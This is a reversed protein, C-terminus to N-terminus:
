REYKRRYADAKASQVVCSGGCLKCLDGAFGTTGKGNCRPCEIEDIEDPDYARRRTRSVVCSGECFACIDNVLGTTGRGNCHPCDVEDIEKPDYADRKARSVVCSGKCFACIDNVLGTTGRGSCHPCEVEDIDEPEYADAKAQSVVCSGRCYACLDSVLGTTGRGNCRPCPVEDIGDPDYADRKAHSVFCSGRCYRCFDGVLGTLGRGNCHPCDVEDIEVLVDEVESVLEKAKDRVAKETQKAPVAAAIAALKPAIKVFAKEPKTTLKDAKAEAEAAKTLDPVAALLSTLESLHIAKLNETEASAINEELKRVFGILSMLSKTALAEYKMVRRRANQKLLKAAKIEEATVNSNPRFGLDYKAHHNPCLYILNGPANNLTKAVAEIHAIEGNDMHGCIACAHHSEEKVDDQIAKPIAPRKGPKPLPWPENLYDRYSELEAEGYTKGAESKVFKLTRQQGKKPCTRSLYEVTEVKLGLFLAAEIPSLFAM